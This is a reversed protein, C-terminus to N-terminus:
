EIKQVTVGAPIKFTFLSDSLANNIKMDQFSLDTTNGLADNFTCRAIAFTDKEITVLLKRLGAEGKPILELLYNGNRDKAPNAYSITFEDKLHGIGALFRIAQGSTFLKESDQVYVINDEAVYLWATKPNLILKKSQPKTYNWLMKKSKKFYVTGEERETRRTSKLTTDQIFRAQLDNAKEYQEQIKDVLACVPM